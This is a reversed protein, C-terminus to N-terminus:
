VGFCLAQCPPTKTSTISLSKVHNGGNEWLAPLKNGEIGRPFGSGRSIYSAPDQSKKMCQLHTVYLKSPIISSKASPNALGQCHPKYPPSLNPICISSQTPPPPPSPLSPGPLSPTPVPGSPGKKVRVRYGLVCMCGAGAIVYMRADSGPQTIDWPPTRSQDGPVAHLGM